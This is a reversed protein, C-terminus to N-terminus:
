KKTKIKVDEAFCRKRDNWRFWRFYANCWINWGNQWYKGRENDAYVCNQCVRMARPTRYRKLLRNM